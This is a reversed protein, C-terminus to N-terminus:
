GVDHDIRSFFTIKMLPAIHAAGFFYCKTFFSQTEFSTPSMKMYLIPSGGGECATYLICSGGEFDTYLVPSGGEFDELGGRNM